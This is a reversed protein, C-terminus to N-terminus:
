GLLLHCSFDQQQRCIGGRSCQELLRTCPLSLEAELWEGHPGEAGGFGVPSRPWPQQCLCSPGLSCCGCGLLLLLKAVYFGFDKLEKSCDRCMSLTLAVPQGSISWQYILCPLLQPCHLHGLM